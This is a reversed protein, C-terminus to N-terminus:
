PEPTDATRGHAQLDVAIVRCGEALQPWAEGYMELGNVAALKGKNM